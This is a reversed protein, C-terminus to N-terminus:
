ILVVMIVDIGDSIFCLPSAVVNPVVDAAAAARPCCSPAVDRLVAVHAPEVLDGRKRLRRDVTVEAGAPRPCLLSSGASERDVGEQSAPLIFLVELALESGQRDAESAVTPGNDEHMELFTEESSQSVPRWRSLVNGISIEPIEVWPQSFM